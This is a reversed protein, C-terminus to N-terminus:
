ESMTDGKEEEEDYDDDDDGDERKVEEEDEEIVAAEIELSFHNHTHSPIYKCAADKQDRELKKLFQSM